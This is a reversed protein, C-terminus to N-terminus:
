FRKKIYKDKDRMRPNDRESTAEEIAKDAEKKSIWRRKRPNRSKLNEKKASEMIEKRWKRPFNRLRRKFRKKSMRGQRRKFAKSFRTNGGEGSSEENERRSPGFIGM